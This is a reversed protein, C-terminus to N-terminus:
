DDRHWWQQSSIPRAVVLTNDTAHERAFLLQTDLSRPKKKKKKKKGKQLLLRPRFEVRAVSAAVATGAPRSENGDSGELIHLRYAARFEVGMPFQVGHAGVRFRQPYAGIRLQVVDPSLVFSCEFSLQTSLVFFSNGSTTLRICSKNRPTLLILIYIYINVITITM